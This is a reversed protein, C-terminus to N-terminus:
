DYKIYQLYSFRHSLQPNYKDKYHVQASQQQLCQQLEPGPSADVGHVFFLVLHVVTLLCKVLQQSLFFGLVEVVVEGM